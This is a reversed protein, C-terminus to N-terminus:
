VRHFVWITDVKYYLAALGISALIVIILAHLRINQADSPKVGRRMIRKYARYSGNYYPSGFGNKLLQKSGISTRYDNYRRAKPPTVRDAVFWRTIYLSATALWLGFISILYGSGRVVLM